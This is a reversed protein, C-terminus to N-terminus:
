VEYERIELEVINKLSLYLEDAKIECLGSMQGDNVEIVIPVGEKTLACDIVFFNTKKSIIKAAKKALKILSKPCKKKDLIIDSSSWYFDYCLLKEKYFFFRWENAFPMGNLSDGVKDLEVYERFVVGQEYFLPDNILKLYINLAEKKNNAFMLENWQHKRSNTKGKVIYRKDEFPLANSDFYTKPTLEEIDLVYEMSAIYKHEQYSNILSSGVLSLDRELEKYYPLVSYRGIVLSDKEIHMRSEITKFYEKCVNFEDELSYDKRFLVSVKKM